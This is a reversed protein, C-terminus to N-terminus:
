RLEATRRQVLAVTGAVALLVAVWVVALRLAYDGTLITPNTSGLSAARLEPLVLLTLVAGVAFGSRIVALSGPALRRGSRDLAASLGATAPAIVGDHVIIAGALWLAVGILQGVELAGLAQYGGVAVLVLGLLVLASRTARM